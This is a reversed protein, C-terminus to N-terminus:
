GLGVNPPVAGWLKLASVVDDFDDSCLYGCGSGIVHQAIDVQEPSRAGAAAKLEIFVVLGGVGPLRSRVGMFDPWGPTVGMRKLKNATVPHRWEGFPLHTWRWTRPSFQRLL